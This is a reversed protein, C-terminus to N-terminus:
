IHILSLLISSVINIDHGYANAKLVPLLKSNYTKQLYNNNYILNEKSIEIYFPNSSM